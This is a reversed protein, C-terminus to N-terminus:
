SESRPPKAQSTENGQLSKWATKGLRRWFSRQERSLEGWRQGLGLESVAITGELIQSAVYKHLQKGVLNAQEKEM